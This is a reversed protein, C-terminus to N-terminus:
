CTPQPHDSGGRDACRQRARLFLGWARLRPDKPTFRQVYLSMSVEKRGAALTAETTPQPHLTAGRGARVLGPRHGYGGRHCQSRWLSHAYRGRWPEEGFSLGAVGSLVVTAVGVVGTHGVRSFAALTTFVRVVSQTASVVRAHGARSFAALTKVVRAVYRVVPAVGPTTLAAALVARVVRTAAKFAMGPIARAARVAARVDRVATKVATPIARVAKVVAKATRAMGRVASPIVKLTIGPLLAVLLAALLIFTDM